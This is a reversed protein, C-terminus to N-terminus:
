INKIKSKSQYNEYVYCIIFFIFIFGGQSQKFTEHFLGYILVGVFSSFLYNNKKYFKLLLKMYVFLIILLGIIGTRFLVDVYQSHASFVLKSDVIFTGIYGSGYLLSNNENLYNISKRWIHIRYGESSKINDFELIRDKKNTKLDILFEDKSYDKNEIDSRYNRKHNLKNILLKDLIKKVFGQDVENLIEKNKLENTPSILAVIISNTMIGLLKKDYFKTTKSFIPLNLLLILFLILFKKKNIFINRNYFSTGIFILMSLSLALLTTRSYTNYLAATNIFLLLYYFKNKSNFIKELILYFAVIHFFGMRSGGVYHKLAGKFGLTYTAHYLFEYYWYITLLGYFVSTIIISLKLTEITEKKVFFIFFFLPVIFVLFSLIKRLLIIDITFNIFNFSFIIIYYSFFIILILNKKFFFKENLLFIIFFLFYLYNVSISASMISLSYPVGSLIGLILIGYYYLNSKKNKKIFNKKITEM